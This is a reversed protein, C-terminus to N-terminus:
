VGIGLTIKIISLITAIISLSGLGGVMVWRWRKFASNDHELTEIRQKFGTNYEDGLLAERIDELNKEMDSFRKSLHGIEENM